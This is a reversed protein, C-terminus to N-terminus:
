SYEIKPNVSRRSQRILIAGPGQDEVTLTDHGLSSMLEAVEIPLNEDTKFRM